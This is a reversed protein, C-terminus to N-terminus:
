GMKQLTEAGDWTTPAPNWFVMLLLKPKLTKFIKWFFSSMKLFGPDEGPLWRVFSAKPVGWKWSPVSCLLVFHLFSCLNKEFSAAKFSRGFHWDQKNAFVLLVADRMEDECCVDSLFFTWDLPWATQLFRKRLTSFWSEFSKEFAISGFVPSFLMLYIAMLVKNRANLSEQFIDRSWWLESLRLWTTIKLCTSVQSAHMVPRVIVVHFEDLEDSCHDLIGPQNRYVLHFFSGWKLLSQLGTTYHKRNFLWIKM